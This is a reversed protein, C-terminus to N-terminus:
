GVRLISERLLGLGFAIANAAEAPSRHTTDVVLDTSHPAVEEFEGAKVLRRLRDMDAIKQYKNREPDSIRREHERDACHLFVQDARYSHRQLCEEVIQAFSPKWFIDDAHTLIVGRRTTCAANLLVSALSSRLAAFGPSGFPFVATATEITLHDHILLYGTSAQLQRAVTLKGVGPAGHLCILHM